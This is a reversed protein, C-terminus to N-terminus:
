VKISMWKARLRIRREDPLIESIDGVSIMMRRRGFLGARVLLFGRAGSGGGAQFGDVTGLDADGGEVVFGEIERVRM